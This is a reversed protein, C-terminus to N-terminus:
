FIDFHEQQLLPDSKIIVEKKYTTEIEAVVSAEDTKLAKAVAPNVRLTIERDELTKAMKKVESQIEYCITQPSKVMGLGSCAACPECLTKLLSQKVRKRTIAVLGFDNFQLIKSPSKDGRLAEELAQTVKQRNKRDEMDIFDCVIIGGLDRMRIQRAIEKAAELNTKVITDELKNSKGVYKGTNVDIAVLAEAQDIVIYGGSKLWVKSRLAKDIEAQVGFEEFIPTEKLYLKVRSVMSPMFRHVFEVVGAYEVENDVRIAVFDPSLHDRLLRQVLNLDRHIVTPAPRKEAKARIDAWLASLYQIDSKFEEEGRGQGATRVIFGGSLHGRQEQIIRKLRQREEDSDIKRSVGIHEVTPMYVLYRGPLAIHSTIRAGKTGLPEKAVQVLIEQGEKLLDAILPVDGGSGNEKRDRFNHPRRRNEPGHRYFRSTSPPNRLEAKNATANRSQASPPNAQVQAAKEPVEPASAPEAGVQTPLTSNQDAKEVTNVAISIEPALAPLSREPKAAVERVGAPSTSVAAEKKMPPTLVVPAEESQTGRRTKEGTEGSSKAEGAVAKGGAEGDPSPAASVKMGGKRTAGLASEGPQSEPELSAVAPLIRPPADVQATITTERSASANEILAVSEDRSGIDEMSSESEASFFSETGEALFSEPEEALSTESEEDPSVEMEREGMLSGPEDPEEVGSEQEGAAAHQYKALSEGPLMSPFKVEAPEEAPKAPSEVATEEFRKGRLRSRRARRTRGRRDVFKPTPTGAPPEAPIPVETEAAATEKVVGQELKAVQEEASSVIKDYEETDEFFDSVYLFADRELGLDVFASQMGPLVKTVRGKCISGVISQEKEREIYIEVVQDNDLIAAKTEKVSVSIILEKPM